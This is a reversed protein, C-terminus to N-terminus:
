KPFAGLNVNPPTISTSGAGKPLRNYMEIAAQKIAEKFKDKNGVREATLDPNVGFADDISARVAIKAQSLLKEMDSRELIIKDAGIPLDEIYNSISQILEDNDTKELTTIENIDPIIERRLLEIQALKDNLKIELDAVQADVGFKAKKAEIQKTLKEVDKEQSALNETRKKNEDSDVRKQYEKIAETKEGRQAIALAERREKSADQREQLARQTQMAQPITEEAARLGVDVLGGIGQTRPTATGLRTFFQALNGFQERKAAEINAAEQEKLKAEREGFFKEREATQEKLRKDLTEGRGKYFDSIEKQREETGPLAAIGSELQGIGTKLAEGEKRLAELNGSVRKEFESPGGEPIDTPLGFVRRIASETGETTYKFKDPITKRAETINEQPLFSLTKDKINQFQQFKDGEKAGSPANSVINGAADEIVLRRSQGTGIQKVTGFVGSGGIVVPDFGPPIGLSSSARRVVPLDAIGGGTYGGKMGFLGTPSFGGFAGYLSGATGAAGLLTQGLTPAPAIPTRQVMPTPMGRVIASYRDLTQYPREQEQIFQQYAEDLAAQTQKQRAEGVSQLAGIERLGTQLQSPALAGLQTGAQGTRAREQGLAQMAQDFAAASGRAQIDALARSQDALAQAELLTGRTGGFSGSAIQAQRLKPLVNQEFQKQAERKEIDVVAQQYPSMRAEIEETTVPAAAAKTFTRAEEFQPATVGSLGALGTFAQEQEPTFQAITPGTYPQFGEAAKTQYLAQAKGLIDKYFPALEPALQGSLMQQAPVTQQPTGFGLLSSLVAM